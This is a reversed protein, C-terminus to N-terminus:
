DAVNVSVVGRVGIHGIHNSQWSTGVAFFEPLM